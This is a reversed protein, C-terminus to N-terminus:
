KKRKVLPLYLSGKEKYKRRVVRLSGKRLGNTERRLYYRDIKETFPTSQFRTKRKKGEDRKSFFTIFPVGGEWDM